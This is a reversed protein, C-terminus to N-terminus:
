NQCDLPVSPDISQTVSRLDYKSFHKAPFPKPVPSNAILLGDHFVESLGLTTYRYITVDSDAKNESALAIDEDSYNLLINSVSFDNEPAFKSPLEFVASLHRSTEELKPYTGSSNQNSRSTVPYNRNSPSPFGHDHSLWFNQSLDACCPNFRTEIGDSFVFSRTLYRGPIKTGILRWDWHEEVCSIWTWLRQKWRYTPSQGDRQRQYTPRYCGQPKQQMKATQDWKCFKEFM